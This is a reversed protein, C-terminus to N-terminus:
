CQTGAVISTWYAPMTVLPLDVDRRQLKQEEGMADTWTAKMHHFCVCFECVQESFFLTSFSSLESIGDEMGKKSAGGSERRSENRTLLCIALLTRRLIMMAVQGIGSTWAIHRQREDQTHCEPTATVIGASENDEAHNGIGNDLGNHGRDRSDKSITVAETSVWFYVRGKDQDRAVSRTFGGWGRTDM